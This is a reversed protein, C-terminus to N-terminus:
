IPAFSSPRAILTGKGRIKSFGAGAYLEIYTRKWKNKMGTAFLKTYLSVLAHKTEAWGGVEPCILGDESVSFVSGESMAGITSGHSGFNRPAIEPLACNLLGGQM